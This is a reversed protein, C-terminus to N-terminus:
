FRVGLYPDLGGFIRMMEDIEEMEDVSLHGLYNEPKIRRTKDVTALQEVLALTRRGQIMVPIHFEIDRRASTSTPIVWLTSLACYLDAQVVVAPRRGAQEHGTRKGFSVLFVDGRRVLM